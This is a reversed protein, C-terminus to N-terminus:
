TCHTQVCWIQVSCCLLSFQWKLHISGRLYQKNKFSLCVMRFLLRCACVRKISRMVICCGYKLIVWTTASQWGYNNQCSSSTGVLSSFFFGPPQWSRWQLHSSMEAHWLCRQGEVSGCCMSEWKMIFMVQRSCKFSFFFTVFTIIFIHLKYNSYALGVRSIFYRTNMKSNVTNCFALSISSNKWIHLLSVLAYQYFCIKQKWAFQFQMRFNLLARNEEIGPHPQKIVKGRTM